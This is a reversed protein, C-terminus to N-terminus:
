TIGNDQVSYYITDIYLVPYITNLPRNQWDGIAPLIEDTVDSIFGEFVDFDYIDM